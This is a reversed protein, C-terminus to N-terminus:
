SDTATCLPKTYELMSSNNSAGPEVQSQDYKLEAHAVGSLTQSLPTSISFPTSLENRTNGSAEMAADSHVSCLFKGSFILVSLTYLVSSYMTHKVGLHVIIFSSSVPLSNMKHMLLDKIAPFGPSLVKPKVETSSVGGM